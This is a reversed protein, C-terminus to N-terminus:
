KCQYFAMKKKHILQHYLTASAITGILGIWKYAQDNKPSFLNACTAPMNSPISSLLITGSIFMILFMIILIIIGIEVTKANNEVFGQTSVTMRYASDSFTKKLNDTRSSM